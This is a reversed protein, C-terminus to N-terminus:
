GDNKWKDSFCYVNVKFAHKNNEKKEIFGANELETFYKASNRRDLGYEHLHSAPFVFYKPSAYHTGRENNHNYLCAKGKVDNTQARCIMYLRQANVSLAQFAQSKLMSVYITGYNDKEGSKAKSANIDICAKQKKRAM